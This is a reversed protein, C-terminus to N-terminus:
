NVGLEWYLLGICQKNRKAMKIFAATLPLLVRDAFVREWDAMKAFRDAERKRGIKM